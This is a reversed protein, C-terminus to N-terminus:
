ILNNNRSWGQQVAAAIHQYDFVGVYVWVCLQVVRPRKDSDIANHTIGKNPDLSSFFSM